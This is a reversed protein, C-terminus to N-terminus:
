RTKYISEPQRQLGTISGPYRVVGQVNPKFLALDEGYTTFVVPAHEVLLRSADEYIPAAQQLDPTQDARNVLQNFEAYWEQGRLGPPAFESGQKFLLSVWNQPHPYDQYWGEGVMDPYRNPNSTKRLAILETPDTPVTQINVGLIQKYQQARWEAVEKAAESDSSYPYRVTPFGQGNPYGADALLQRAQDPDFTQQADEAYGAIGPYLLQGAPKGVGNLVQKIYQERNYAFAFAKRVREDNFPEKSNNFSIWGTLPSQARILEKSLTPNRQVTPLNDAAIENVDLQGRQYALLATQPSGIIRWTQRALGPRGRWYNENREFVIQQKPTYSVLKFPGNGVYYQPNAWWREGGAEVLDQRSPMTTWLSMIYPFYGAKNRIEVELTEDDVARVGVAERLRQKEADAVEKPNEPDDGYVLRYEECGVIDFMVGSYQGEVDPDCARLIGYAYNEATVPQGDSYQMDRIKFTYTKGDASLTCSEAGNLTPELDTNISLLPSFVQSMYDIEISFSGAQPDANEPDTGLNYVLEGNPDADEPIQAAEIAPQVGCDGAGGAGPVGAADDTVTGTAEATTTTEATTTMGPEATEMAGTVTAAPTEAMETEGAPPTEIGVAPSVSIASVGAAVTVPAM